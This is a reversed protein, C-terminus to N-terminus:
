ILAQLRSLFGTQAPNMKIAAEALSFWGARDLEPYEAFKGSHPPWEIRCTNCVIKDPDCEGPCAWAHVTKGGAQRVSGLSQFPGPADFGTEEKFERIATALPEERPDIEGKPITWVGADKRAWFPGGPHLLFIEPAGNRIRYFVIGASQRPM